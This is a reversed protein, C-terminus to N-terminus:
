VQSNGELAIQVHRQPTETTARRDSRASPPGRVDVNAAIQVLM